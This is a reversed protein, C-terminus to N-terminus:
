PRVRDPASAMHRPRREPINLLSRAATRVRELWRLAAQAERKSATFGPYRAGVAFRTPFDLGRRYAQLSSHFPLLDRLVELLLHTRQIPQGLEELLAKLYKEASQQCHFCQQDHFPESGSAIKRALRYDAEAKRVWERTTKKM